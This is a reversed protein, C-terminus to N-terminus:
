GELMLLRTLVGKSRHSMFVIGMQARSLITSYALLVANSACLVAIMAGEGGELDRRENRVCGRVVLALGAKEYV